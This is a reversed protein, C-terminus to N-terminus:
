QTHDYYRLLSVKLDMGGHPASFYAPRRDNREYGTRFFFGLPVNSWSSDDEKICLAVGFTTIASRPCVEIKHDSDLLAEIFENPFLCDKGNMQVVFYSGQDENKQLRTYNHSLKTLLVAFLRNRLIERKTHTLKANGWGLYLDPLIVPNIPTPEATSRDDPDYVDKKGGDGDSTITTSTTSEMCSDEQGTRIRDELGLIAAEFHDEIIFPNPILIKPTTTTAAAADNESIEIESKDEDSSTDPDDESLLPPTYYTPNFGVEGREMWEIPSIDIKSDSRVKQNLNVFSILEMVNMPLCAMDGIPDWDVNHDVLVHAIIYSIIKSAVTGLLSEVKGTGLMPLLASGISPGFSQILLSAMVVYLEKELLKSAMSNTQGDSNKITTTANDNNKNDTFFRLSSLYQGLSCLQWSSSHEKVFEPHLELCKIVKNPKSITDRYVLGRVLTRKVNDHHRKISASYRFYFISASIVVVIAVLQIFQLPIDVTITKLYRFIETRRELLWVVPGYERISSLSLLSSM